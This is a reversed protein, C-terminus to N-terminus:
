PLRSVQGAAEERIRARALWAFALFLVGGAAAVGGLSGGGVRGYLAVFATPGVLLALDTVSGHVGLATGRGVPWPDHLLARLTAAFVLSQGVAYLLLLATVPTDGEVFGMGALGNFFFALTQFLLQGFDFFLM